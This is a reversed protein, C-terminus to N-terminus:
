GGRPRGAAATAVGRVGAPGPEERRVPGRSARRVVPRRWVHGPRHPLAHLVSGARDPVASAAYSFGVDRVPLKARAPFVSLADIMGLLAESGAGRGARAALAPVATRLQDTAGYYVEIRGSRCELGIMKVQPSPGPAHHPAGLLATLWGDAADRAAAPVEAYIKFSDGTERHHVGLWAGFSLQGCQQLRAVRRLSEAPVAAGRRQLIACVEGLRRSPRSGPPGVETTYRFGASCEAFGFELPVGTMTLRSRPWALVEPELLGIDHLVATARAGAPGWTALYGTLGTPASSVHPVGSPM